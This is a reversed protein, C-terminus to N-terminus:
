PNRIKPSTQKYICLDPHRESEDEPILLKCSKGDIVHAIHGPHRDQYRILQKIIEEVQFAHAPQPVDSVTIVGRSLEYLRGEQVEAFEFDKLRMRRGHDAPTIKIATKMAM